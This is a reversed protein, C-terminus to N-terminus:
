TPQGMREELYGMLGAGPRGGLHSIVEAACIAGMRGCAAPCREKALGALFGAAYLDGAGTTDEIDTQFAPVAIQEGGTLILSGRESRTLIVYEAQSEMLSVAEAFSAAETLSIIEDENAFLIDIQNKILDRFENRYRDVCFSDSLTLAVRNGAAHALKTAKLFAQKAGPPDWLYGELYVISARQLFEAEVDEPGLAHSAGLYTNMTRMADPTILIFSRATHEHDESPPTPFDVGLSRIDHAFVDGLQDQAVKGIFGTALDLAALGAITNAASGGSVEIAPGMDEYLNVAQNADILNMANKTLRHKTLFDDEVRSLVDVIANGIGVVDLQESM